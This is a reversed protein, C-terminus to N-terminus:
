DGLCATASLRYTRDAGLMHVSPTAGAFLGAFARDRINLGGTFAGFAPLVMRRGDTVFCRRRVGRGARAIRAVPHLHGCVEGPGADVEPAHRFLLPGLALSECCTGGLGHPAPDHNGAIWVMERGAALRRLMEHAPPDLREAAWRDHLSDGLAIITRPALRDVLAALRALTDVTDYPPLMQGRRAFASGKELHMDAVALLREEVWFLAGGADLVVEAGALDLATPGAPPLASVSEACAPM